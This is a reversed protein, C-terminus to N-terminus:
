LSSFKSGIYPSCQHQYVRHIYSTAVGLYMLVLAYVTSIVAPASVWCFQEVTLMFWDMNYEKLVIQDIILLYCLAVKFMLVAMIIACKRNVHTMTM